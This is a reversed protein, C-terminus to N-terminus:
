FNKPIQASLKPRTLHPLGKPLPSQLLLWQRVKPYALKRIKKSAIRKREKPSLNYGQFIKAIRSFEKLTEKPATPENIFEALIRGTIGLIFTYRIFITNQPDAPTPTSMKHFTHITICQQTLTLIQISPPFNM